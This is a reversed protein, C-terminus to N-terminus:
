DLVWRKAQDLHWNVTELTMGKVALLRGRMEGDDGKIQCLIIVSEMEEAHEMAELPIDTVSSKAIGKGRMLDTSVTPVLQPRATKRWNRIKELLKM